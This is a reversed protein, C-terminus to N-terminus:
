SAKKFEGCEGAATVIPFRGVREDNNWNVTPPHARCEGVVQGLARYHTCRACAPPLVKPVAPKVEPPM